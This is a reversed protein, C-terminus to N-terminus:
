EEKGTPANQKRQKARAMMDWLLDERDYVANEFEQSPVLAGTNCAETCLGCYLCRGIDMTYSILTKRNSGETKEGTLKIVQNPCANACMNCVICKDPDLAMSSRARPPLKPMEEPYFQTVNPQLMRKLTIGMGKFLGKGFM